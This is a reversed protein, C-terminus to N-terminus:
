AVQLAAVWKAKQDTVAQQPAAEVHDEAMTVGGKFVGNFQLQLGGDTAEVVKAIHGVAWGSVIRVLQDKAYVPKKPGTHDFAGDAEMAAIQVVTWPNILATAGDTKLVGDIGDIQRLDWESQHPALGVFVYGVLLPREARVRSGHHRRYFRHMPMYAVFRRETLGSMARREAMASCRAIVWRMPETRVGAAMVDKVSVRLCSIDTLRETVVPRNKIAAAVARLSQHAANAAREARRDKQRRRRNAKPKTM